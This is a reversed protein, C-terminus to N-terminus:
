PYLNNVGNRDDGELTRMWYTGKPIVNCMTANNTNGPCYIGSTHDLGLGHGMEHTSVSRLDVQTSGPVGTGAYWNESSDITLTAKTITNGSLTLTTVAATGNIGDINQYYVWMGQSTSSNWSWHSPTVNTWTTAGASIHSRYSSIVRTDFRYYQTNSGWAGFTTWARAIQSSSISLLFLVIVISIPMRTKM